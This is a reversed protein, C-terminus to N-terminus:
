HIYLYQSANAALIIRGSVINYGGGAVYANMESVSVDGNPLINEVVAVHGLGGGNQMIAGISPTHDVRLGSRAAYYAWTAANGWKASVSLGLDVRRDYVYATCNGHAYTNGPRMPTGTKIYWTRGGFGAGLGYYSSVPATYGPRENSPLIGAPLIIQAGAKLGGLDLDNFLVLRTQDVDYKKAISEITDGSKVTYIVGDVPPIKLKSGVSVSNSTTNNAWKITQTSIGFNSAISDLSDGDKVTYSITDTRVPSDSGALQSKSIVSTNSQTIESQIQASIALSAVNPAVSLNATQAVDAAIATAVIDNVSAKTDVSNSTEVTSANVVTSEQQPEHYGLGVIVIVLAFISAYIAITSSKLSAKAKRSRAPAQQSIAATSRQSSGM